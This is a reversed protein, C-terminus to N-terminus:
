VSRYNSTLTTGAIPSIQGLVNEDIQLAISVIIM